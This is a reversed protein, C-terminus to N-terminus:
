RVAASEANLGPSMGAEPARLQSKEATAALLLLTVAIFNVGIIAFGFDFNLDLAFPVVSFSNSEVAFTPLAASLAGWRLLPAVRLGRMERYLWASGLGVFSLSLGLWLSWLSILTTSALRLAPLTEVAHALVVNLTAGMTLAVAVVLLSKIPKMM